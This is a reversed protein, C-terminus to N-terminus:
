ALKAESVIRSGPGIISCGPSILRECQGEEKMKAAPQYKNQASMWVARQHYMKMLEEASPAKTSGSEKDHIAKLEGGKYDKWCREVFEHFRLFFAWWKADPILMSLETVKFWIQSAQDIANKPRQERDKRFQRFVSYSFPRNTTSLIWEKTEDKWTFACIWAKRDGDWQAATGWLVRQLVSYTLGRQGAEIAKITPGPVDILESLRNQTIPDKKGRESLLGRLLRLPNRANEPKPPHPMSSSTYLTRCCGDFLIYQYQNADPIRHMGHGDCLIREKFSGM